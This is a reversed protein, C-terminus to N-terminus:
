TFVGLSAVANPAILNLVSPGLVIGVLIQGVIHPLRIFHALRGCLLGGGLLIIALTLLANVDKIMATRGDNGVLMRMRARASWHRDPHVNVDTLKGALIM